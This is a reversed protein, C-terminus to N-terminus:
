RVPTHRLTIEALIPEGPNQQVSYGDPDDLVVGKAAMPVAQKANNSWAAMSKDLNHLASADTDRTNVNGQPGFDQELEPIRQPSLIVYLKEIGPTADFAMAATKPVSRFKGPEVKEPGFVLHPMESPPPVRNGDEDRVVELAKDAGTITRNIVYVYVVTRVEVQLWFHDGTHFEYSAPVNVKKGDARQLQIHFRAGLTTPHQERDVYIGKLTKLDDAPAAMMTVASVMTLILTKNFM